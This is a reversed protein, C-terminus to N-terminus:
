SRSFTWPPQRSAALSHMDLAYAYSHGRDAISLGKQAAFATARAAFLAKIEEVTM